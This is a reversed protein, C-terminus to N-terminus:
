VHLATLVTGDANVIVGTGATDATAGGTRVAEISVVSPAVAAYIEATSPSKSPTATPPATTPSWEPAGGSGWRYFVIATLVLAVVAIAAGRGKHVTAPAGPGGAIE